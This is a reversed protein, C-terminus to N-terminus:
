TRRGPSPSNARVNTLACLAPRRWVRRTYIRGTANYYCSTVLGDLIGESQKHVNLLSVQEKESSECMDVVGDVSNRAKKRKVAKAKTTIVVEDGHKDGNNDGDEDDYEDDDDDDGDDGDDIAYNPKDHHHYSPGDGMEEDGTKEGDDRGEEFEQSGDYDGGEEFAIDAAEDRGLSEEEELDFRPVAGKSREVKRAKKAVTYDNEFPTNPHPSPFNHSRISMDSMYPDFTAMVNKPIPPTSPQPPPKKTSHALRKM